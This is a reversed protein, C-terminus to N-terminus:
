PPLKAPFSRRRQEPSFKWKTSFHVRKERSSAVNKPRILRQPDREFRDLNNNHYTKTEFSFEM